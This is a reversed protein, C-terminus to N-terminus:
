SVQKETEDMASWANGLLKGIEAFTLSPNEKILELRKEASFIMYSSPASKERVRRKKILLAQQEKEEAQKIYVQRKEAPLMCWEATFAKIIDVHPLDREACSARIINRHETCFLAFATPLKCRNIWIM